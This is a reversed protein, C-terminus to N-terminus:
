RDLAAAAAEDLFWYVQGNLPDVLKAPYIQPPQSGKLVEYVAQQKDEGSVVFVANSCLNAAAKTLTLRYMNQSASWFYDVWKTAEHLVKGYPFMSLTHGDTGLGLLLVDMTKAPTFFNRLVAEYEQASKEPTTNETKFFHIQQDQVPLHELLNKYCMGANSHEDTVPVFREDGLFFHWKSWEFQHIYADGSLLRYLAKPTSGGSLAVTFFDQEQLVEKEKQLLFDAVKRNLADRNKAVTIQM